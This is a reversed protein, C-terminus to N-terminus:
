DWFQDGTLDITRYPGFKIEMLADMLENPFNQPLRKEIREKDTMNWYSEHGFPIGEEYYRIKKFDELVHEWRDRCEDETRFVGHRSCYAQATKWEEIFSTSKEITWVNYFKEIENRKAEILVITDSVSWLTRGKQASPLMATQGQVKSQKESSTHTSVEENKRRGTSPHCESIATTKM